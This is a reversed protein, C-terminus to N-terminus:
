KLRKGQRVSGVDIREKADKPLAISICEIATSPIVLLESATQLAVTPAKLFEKFRTEAGAGGWFEAEFKEERGSIYRITVVNKM